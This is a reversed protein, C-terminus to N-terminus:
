IPKGKRITSRKKAWYGPGPKNIGLKKCWKEVAKSSVGYKIAIKTAPIEWVLKELEEKPPCSSPRITNSAIERNNCRRCKESKNNIAKGCQCKNQVFGKLTGFTETQSHCNPCLFELNSKVNNLHNGDIHEIQLVLKENQWLEGIGCKACKHKIGSELMSRRLIKSKVDKNNVLIESWHKKSTPKSMKRTFHSFDIKNKRLYEFFHTVSSGRARRGMKRLAECGNTSTKVSEVVEDYNYTM